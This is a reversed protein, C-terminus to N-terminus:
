INLQLHAHFFDGKYYEKVYRDIDLKFPTNKCKKPCMKAHIGFPIWAPTVFNIAEACNYGSNFGSHYGYPFTIIFENVNQAGEYVPIGNMRLRHPNIITTKHRLYQPCSFIGVQLRELDKAKCQPVCYWIKPAGEHLYSISFKDYDEPHWPFSSGASGFYLFSTNVGPIKIDKHIIDGLNKLNCGDCNDDFLSTEVNDGYVAKHKSSKLSDWYEQASLVPDNEVSAKFDKSKMLMTKKTTM